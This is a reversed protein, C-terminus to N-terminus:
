RDIERERYRRKHLVVMSKCHVSAQTSSQRQFNAIVPVCKQEARQRACPRATESQKTKLDSAQCLTSLLNNDGNNGRQPCM